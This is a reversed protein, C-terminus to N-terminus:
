RDYPGSPRRAVVDCRVEQRRRRCSEALSVGGAAGVVVLYVYCMHARGPSVGEGGPCENQCGPIHQLSAILSCEMDRCFNAPGQLVVDMFHWIGEKIYGFDTNM